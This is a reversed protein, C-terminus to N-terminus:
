WVAASSYAAKRLARRESFWGSHREDRHSVCLGVAIAPTAAATATRAAAPTAPELHSPRGDDADAAARCVTSTLWM